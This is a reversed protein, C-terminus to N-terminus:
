GCYKINLPYDRFEDLADNLGLSKGILIYDTNLKEQNDPIESTTSINIIRSHIDNVTIQLNDFVYVKSENNDFSKNVMNSKCAHIMATLQRKVIPLTVNSGTILRYQEVVDLNLFYLNKLHSKYNEIKQEIYNVNQITQNTHEIKYIIQKNENVYLILNKYFYNYHCDYNDEIKKRFLMTGKVISSLERKISGVSIFYDVNKYDVWFKIVDGTVRYLM